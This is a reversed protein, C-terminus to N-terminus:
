VKGEMFVYSTVIVHSAYYQDLYILANEITIGGGIQLGYPYAQLAERAATECNPGLM